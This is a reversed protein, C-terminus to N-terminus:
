WRSLRPDLPIGGLPVIPSPATDPLSAPPALNQSMYDNGNDYIFGMPALSVPWPAVWLVLHTPLFDPPSDHADM